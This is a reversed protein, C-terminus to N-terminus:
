INLGHANEVLETLTHIFRILPAGDIIDHDVSLAINLHKRIKIENNVIGPKDSIGGLVIFLSHIGIPNAWGPFKGFMGVSTVMITGMNKKVMFPKKQMRKLVIKQLYNPAWKVLNVTMTKHGKGLVYVGNTTNERQTKRIEENIELVTKENTKRVIYPLPITGGDISKEVLISIDVDDFIILKRKGKRYSHIYKHKVAAESICKVIWGTFSIKEGTKQKYQSILDCGDTVDIEIWLHVYHKKSGMELANIIIDRAKPFKEERYEGIIDM